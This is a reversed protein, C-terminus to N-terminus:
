GKPPNYDKMPSITNKERIKGNLGQISIEGGTGDRFSDRQKQYVGQQTKDTFSARENGSITSKWGNATKSIMAKPNKAM